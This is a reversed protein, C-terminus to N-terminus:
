GQARKCGSKDSKRIFPRSSMHQPRGVRSYDLRAECRSAIPGSAAARYKLISGDWTSSWGRLPLLWKHVILADCSGKAWKQRGCGLRGGWPPAFGVAAQLVSGARVTGARPVSRRWSKCTRRASRCPPGAPECARWPATFCAQQEDSRLLHFIRRDITYARKAQLRPETAMALATPAPGHLGLRSRLSTRRESICGGLMSLFPGGDNRDFRRAAGRIRRAVELDYEDTESSIPGSSSNRSCNM